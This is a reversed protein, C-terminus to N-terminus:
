NLRTNFFASYLSTDGAESKVEIYLKWQMDPQTCSGLFTFGKNTKKNDINEFIIPTKGMYMNEGEVWAGAIVYGKSIDFNIFLEEEIAPAQLFKIRLSM